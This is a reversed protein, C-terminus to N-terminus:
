FSHLRNNLDYADAISAFMARVKDAKDARRHPDAELEQTKWVPESM